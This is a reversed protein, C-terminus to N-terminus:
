THTNASRDQFKGEGVVRRYSSESVMVTSVIQIMFLLMIVFSIWFSVSGYVLYIGTVIGVSMAFVSLNCYLVPETVLPNHQLFTDIMEDVAAAPSMNLKLYQWTGTLITSMCAGIVTTHATTYIYMLRKNTEESNSEYFQSPSLSLAAISSTMFLASVVSLAVRDNGFSERLKAESEIKGFNSKSKLTNTKDEAM